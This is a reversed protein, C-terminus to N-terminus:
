EEESDNKESKLKDKVKNITHTLDIEMGEQNNRFGETSEKVNGKIKNASEKITNISGKTTEKLDNRIEKGSKPALLVGAIAGIFAGITLGTAVKKGTNRRKKKEIIEKKEKLMNKIAM